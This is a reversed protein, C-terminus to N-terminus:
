PQIRQGSEISRIQINEVDTDLARLLRPLNELAIVSSLSANPPTVQLLKGSPMAGLPEDLSLESDRGAAELLAAWEPM